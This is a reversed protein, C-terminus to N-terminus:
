ALKKQPPNCKNEWEEYLKDIQNELAEIKIRYEEGLYWCKKCHFNGYDGGGPYHEHEVCKPCLLKRCKECKVGHSWYWDSKIEAECVDCYRHKIIIEKTIKEEKIM